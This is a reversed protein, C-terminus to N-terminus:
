KTSNGKNHKIMIRAYTEKGNIEFRKGYHPSDDVYRDLGIIEFQKPNYKYLFTIPVGMVGSYDLPIEAVRGVEIAYYNDYKPYDNENYTKYLPLFEHRKKIDLNTLWCINGFKALKQGDENAVYTNNRSYSEPVVFEQAGNKYGLWMKNEKILPFIEKCTALNINAIILFKKDYDFLQQIYERLLSFPPNTVVIDAEKLLEIAEDSRFDGNQKLPTKINDKDDIKGDKNVDGVIELKYSPRSDEFHTSILKKLRLNEFNKAFYFYFNSIEPDDCNCFVVKGKFHEKYHVLEKEIDTLKTYFEDFKDKKAASLSKSAM